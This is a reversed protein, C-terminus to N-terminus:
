EEKRNKRKQRANKRARKGAAREQEEKRRQEEVKRFAEEGHMAMEEVEFMDEKHLRRFRNIGAVLILLSDRIGTFVGEQYMTYVLLGLPVAIIMGVVGGVQYGIYLLVLTPLPPVGISDGVIKPQILQRALQGGCWIILLGVATKYDAAFIKVIAWPILVTGTGLFPLFDLIAIGLAILAYYNVGLVGLGLVLLLYMWIEIKLQAKLYGGVSKVLSRRVMSYYLQITAPTHKRFWENIQQHEAVFFYASLLAMIVGIFISPLQLALNGAAEITPTGIRELFEGMYNGVTDTLSNLNIKTEGPLKELLSSLSQGMSNIDAEMGAWMDPLATLLGGVQETLWAIVFYILLVLLAIVAIIVFASGIKRKLKIKEEFFRVLPSAMLAIIWGIVFPLFFMLARPVLFIIGLLIALAIALNVLAKSYRKM